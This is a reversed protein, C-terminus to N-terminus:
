ERMVLNCVIMDMLIEGPWERQSSSAVPSALKVIDKWFPGQVV